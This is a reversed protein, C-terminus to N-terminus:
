ITILMLSCNGDTKVKHLVHDKNFGNKEHILFTLVSLELRLKHILHLASPKKLLCSKKM